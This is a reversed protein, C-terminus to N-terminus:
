LDLAKFAVPDASIRDAPERWKRTLAELVVRGPRDATLRGPADQEVLSHLVM